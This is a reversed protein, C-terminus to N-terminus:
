NFKSDKLINKEFRRRIVFAHSVKVQLLMSLITAVHLPKNQLLASLYSSDPM